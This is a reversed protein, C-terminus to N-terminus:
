PQPDVERSLIAPQASVPPRLPRSREPKPSAVAQPAPQSAAVQASGDEKRFFIVAVAIVLALGLAVGYKADNPM